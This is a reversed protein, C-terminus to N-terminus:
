LPLSGTKIARLAGVKNIMGTIHASKDVTDARVHLILLLDGQWGLGLPLNTGLDPTAAYSRPVHLIRLFM